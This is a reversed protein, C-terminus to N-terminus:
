YQKRRRIRCQCDEPGSNVKQALPYIRRCYGSGRLCESRLDERLRSAPRHWRSGKRLFSRSITLSHSARVVLVDLAAVGLKNEVEKVGARISADDSVDIIVSDITAQCGQEGKIKGIAEQVRSPNRGSMSLHVHSHKSLHRAAEYGLGQNSGTILIALKSLSM